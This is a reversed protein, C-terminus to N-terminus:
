DAARIDPLLSFAVGMGYVWRRFAIVKRPRLLRESLGGLLYCLNAVALFPLFLIAGVVLTFGTVELCPLRDQFLGWVALLSIGSIPAAIILIINYRLRRASWWAKREAATGLQTEM